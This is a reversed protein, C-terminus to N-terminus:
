GNILGFWALDTVCWSMTHMRRACHDRITRQCMPQLQGSGSGNDCSWPRLSRVLLDVYLALVHWDCSLHSCMGTTSLIDMWARNVRPSFLTVLHRGAVMGECQTQGSIPQFQGAACLKCESQQTADSYKGPPCEACVASGAQGSARGAACATCTTSAQNSYFGAPCELCDSLLTKEIDPNRRGPPLMLKM